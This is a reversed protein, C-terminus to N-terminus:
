WVESIPYLLLLTGFSLVSPRRPKLLTRITEDGEPLKSVLTVVERRMRSKLKNLGGISAQLNELERQARKRCCNNTPKLIEYM